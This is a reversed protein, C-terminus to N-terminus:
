FSKLFLFLLMDSTYHAKLSMYHGVFPAINGEKSLAFM